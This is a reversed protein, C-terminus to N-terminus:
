SKRRTTKTVNKLMAVLVNKNQEYAKLLAFAMQQEGVDESIEIRSQLHSIDQKRQHIAKSFAMHLQPYWGISDEGLRWAQKSNTLTVEMTGDLNVSNVEAHNICVKIEKIPPSLNVYPGGIYGGFTVRYFHKSM